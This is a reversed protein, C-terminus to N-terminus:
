ESPSRASIEIATVTAGPGLLLAVRLGRLSNSIMEAPRSEGELLRPVVTTDFHLDTRDELDTVRDGVRIGFVEGDFPVTVFVHSVVKGDTVTTVGSGAAVGAAQSAPAGPLLPLDTRRMSKALREARHAAAGDRALDVAALFTITEYPLVAVGANDTGSASVSETVSIAYPTISALAAVFDREVRADRFEETTRFQVTSGPKLTKCLDRWKPPVRRVDAIPAALAITRRTGDAAEIAVARESRERLTGVIENGDPWLMVGIAEGISADLLAAHATSSRRLGDVQVIRPLAVEVVDGPGDDRVMQITVSGDQCGALQGSVYSGDDLRARLWDGQAVGEIMSVRSASTKVVVHRQVESLRIPVREEGATYPVSIWASSVGAMELRAYVRRGLEIAGQAAQFQRPPQLVVIWAGKEAKALQQGGVTAHAADVPAVDASQPADDAQPQRSAPDTRRVIRSRRRDVERQAATAAAQQEPSPEPPKPDKRPEPAKPEAPPKGNSANGSADGPKPAPEAGLDKPDAPKADAPKGDAPKGDAPKADAPPTPAPQEVPPKDGDRFWKLVDIRAIRMRGLAPTEIVFFSDDESLIKGQYVTGSKTVIEDARATDTLVAGALASLALVM